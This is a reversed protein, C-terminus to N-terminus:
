VWVVGWRSIPDLFTKETRGQRKQRNGGGEKYM